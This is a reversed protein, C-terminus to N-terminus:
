NFKIALSVFASGSLWSLCVRDFVKADCYLCKHRLRFVSCCAIRVDCCSPSIRFSPTPILPLFQFIFIATSVYLNIHLNHYTSIPQYINTSLRSNIFIKTSLPLHIHYLTLKTPFQYVLIPLSSYISIIYSQHFNIFLHLYLSIVIPISHSTSISLCTCISFIYIFIHLSLFSLFFFDYWPIQCLAFVKGFRRMDTTLDDTM